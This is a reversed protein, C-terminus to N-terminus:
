VTRGMASFRISVRKLSRRALPPRARIGNRVAPSGSRAVVAASSSDAWPAPADTQSIPIGKLSGMASPGTIWAEILRASSAPTRTSATSSM